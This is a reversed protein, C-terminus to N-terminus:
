AVEDKSKQMKAYCDDCIFTVEGTEENMIEHKHFEDDVIYEGCKDCEIFYKELCNDCVDENVSEVYVTSDNPIYDNCYECYTYYDEACWKCVYRDEYESFIVDEECHYDGCHECYIFNNDLCDDCVYRNVADIWHCEDALHYEGCYDCYHVCNECYYEGDILIMDDTNYYDGCDTCACGVRCCNINANECHTSGCEICIPAAGVEMINGYMPVKDKLVSFYANKSNCNWDDYLTASDNRDVRWNSKKVWLNPVNECDAIIKQVIARISDYQEGNGDNASPYLRSQLLQGDYYCFVQRQIKPELEIADGNYEKDVTYFIMSVDDLMYSITGSSYCGCDDANRIDHCSHWSNGNSMYLYDIPNVSLVTHRKVQLVSMADCYKAYEKNFNDLKDWELIKCIRGIVRTTKEGVKAHLEPMIDNLTDVLYKTSDSIFTGCKGLAETCDHVRGLYPNNTHWISYTLDADTRYIYNFFQTAITKDVDRKFDTDFQIMKKEDNWMPHKSLLNILAAKNNAWTDIIKKVANTTFAYYNEELVDCMTNYIKENNM